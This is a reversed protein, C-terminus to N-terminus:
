FCSSSGATWTETGRRKEAKRARRLQELAACAALMARQRSPFYDLFRGEVMAGWHGRACFVEAKYGVLGWYGNRIQM